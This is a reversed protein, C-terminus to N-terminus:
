AEALEDKLMDADIFTRFARVKFREGARDHAPEISGLWRGGPVTVDAPERSFVISRVDNLLHDRTPNRSREFWRGIAHLALTIIPRAEILLGAVTDCHVLMVGLGRDVNDPEWHSERGSVGGFILDEIHLHGRAPADIKLALRFPHEVNQWRRVLDIAHGERLSPKRDLRRELEGVIPRLAHNYARDAVAADRRLQRALGIFEAPIRTSGASRVLADM